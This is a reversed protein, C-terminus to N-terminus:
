GIPLQIETVYNKPNGKLFMGPGKLYVERTPSTNTYGKEKAYKFAKAYSPGLQDYPGKHILCVCRAGPLERVSVGDVPKGAQKLPMCAEFDADTEKYETDYHLLFCPGSIHRGFSRGIKSFGKGCDAYKGKMRVGAILQPALTKEQVDPNQPVMVNAQREQQIFADLSRILGRLHRIREDLTSKHKEMAALIAAPDDASALMERIQDLPFELGRLFGIARARENLTADYYRYGSQPDVFTPVLLREDHYFRLTKVTMGCARSFEGISFLRNRQMEAM